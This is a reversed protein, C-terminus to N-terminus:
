NQGLAIYEWYKKNTFLSIVFDRVDNMSSIVGPGKASGGLDNNTYNGFAADLPHLYISGNRHITVWKGELYGSNHAQVVGGELAFTFCIADKSMHERWFNRNEQHLPLLDSRPVIKVKIRLQINREPPGISVWFLDTAGIIYHYSFQEDLRIQVSPEWESIENLVSFLTDKLDRYTKEALPASSEIEEQLEANILLKTTEGHRKANRIINPDIRGVKKPLQRPFLKNLLEVVETGNAPSTIQTSCAATFARISLGLEEPIGNDYVAYRWHVPRQWHDKPAKEDLMWILLQGLDFVDLWPPVEELRTRMIDPSFRANGVAQDTPTLRGGDEDHALGFDILIPWTETEGRKMILNKPKIDRHVIGNNHCVSLADSLELFVYIAQDILAKPDHKLERKQRKWWEDFPDGLESIYWPREIDATWDFLTVIARHQVRSSLIELERQFRGRSVESMPEQIERYVGERGDEHRVPVATAQGGKM